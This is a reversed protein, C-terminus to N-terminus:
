KQHDFILLLNYCNTKLICDRVFDGWTGATIWHCAPAPPSHLSGWIFIRVQPDEPGCCWVSLPFYVSPLMHVLSTSASTVSTHEGQFLMLGWGRGVECRGKFRWSSWWLLLGTKRKREASLPHFYVRGEHTHTSRSTQDWSCVCVCMYIRISVKKRVRGKIRVPVRFGVCGTIM